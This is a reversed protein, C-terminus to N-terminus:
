RSVPNGAAGPWFTLLADLLAGPNEIAPSHLADPIVSRAAGLRAAMSEQVPPPWADEGEGYAVLVPVGAAALEEIRDPETRLGQGMAKLGAEDSALFRRRLFRKLPVPLTPWGPDLQESLRVMLAYVARTGGHDFVPELQEMREKRPGDLAGPGSDLLTVSTFLEPRDIVASRAVLGGFSHGVVHVAPGLAEVVALLERGLAAVAYGAPDAAGPSQYQGRQDYAVARWGAETLPGFLPGFDEKSGTYGPVFVATPRSGPTDEPHTDLAALPGTPTSLYRHSAAIPLVQSIRTTVV